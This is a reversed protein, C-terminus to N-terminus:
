YSSSTHTKLSGVDEVSESHHLGKLGQWLFLGTILLLLGISALNLLPLLM